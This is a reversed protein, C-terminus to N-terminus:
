KEGKFLGAFVDFIIKIEDLVNKPEQNFQVEVGYRFQSKHPPRMSYVAPDLGVHKNTNNDLVNKRMYDQYWDKLGTVSREKYGHKENDHLEPIDYGNEKMERELAHLFEHIFVEEPFTMSAANYTYIYSNRDNPLRINSFGVGYLDM